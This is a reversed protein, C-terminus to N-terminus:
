CEIFHSFFLYKRPTAVPTSSVCKMVGVALIDDICLM